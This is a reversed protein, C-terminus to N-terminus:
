VGHYTRYWDVFRRLGEELPTSPAFGVDRSLAEVDAYTAVVDAPPMPALRKDAVRGTLQELIEVFRLLPVPSHNGVNYLRYPALSTAPNPHEPSWAPDASAQRDLLRVLSEIVDDVYTFDREMQGHNFLEIPEGAFLKRVFIYYAMDPRGWPGYVTFFRVGTVPMGYVHAYTHALMENAKKTAAYLSVPHDTPDDTSFPVCGSAGYVSSSSAFVLHEPRFARCSELVNMFGVLNSQTYADPNVMSYRVGAQAALHLVRRPSHARMVRDLSPRDALDLREFQFAPNRRLVELRALKLSPDYYENINDVGVVSEGAELLRVCAHFGIFGAAGTVLTTPM